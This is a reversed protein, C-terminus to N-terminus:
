SVGSEVWYKGPVGGGGRRGGEGGTDEVSPNERITWELRCNLLPTRSSELQRRHLGLVSISVMKLKTNNVIM